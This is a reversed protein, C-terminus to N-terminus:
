YGLVQWAIYLMVNSSNATITLSASYDNTKDWSYAVSTVAQGAILELTNKFNNALYVAPISSRNIDRLSLLGSCKGINFSEGSNLFLYRMNGAKALSVFPELEAM